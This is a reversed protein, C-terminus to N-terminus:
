SSKSSQEYRAISRWALFCRLSTMRRKFLQFREVVTDRRVKDQVFMKWSNVVRYLHLKRPDDFVHLERLRNMELDNTSSILSEKLQTDRRERISASFDKAVLNLLRRKKQKLWRRKLIKFAKTCLNETRFEFV